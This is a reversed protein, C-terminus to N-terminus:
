CPMASGAPMAPWPSAPRSPACAAAACSATASRSARPTDPCAGPSARLADRHEPLGQRSIRGRRQLSASQWTAPALGTAADLHDATPFRQIPLSHAAFAAARVVAVGPLTTLIQGDTAALLRALQTEVAAIDAQLGQHRALDGGLREARLEADAPPALLRRWRDVWFRATAKTLRGPARAQLSRVTPPRGAFTAACALVAQGTPDDLALARGHGAPASLGPCLAQLQDHLRQQLVKRDAVLGRRHRVAGLLAEVGGQAVPRGAGQRLRWVLAACDRDDTKYRRSGLQARAAQTQSPCGAV